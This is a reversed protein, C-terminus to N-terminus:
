EPADEKEWKSIINILARNIQLMTEFGVINRLVPATADLECEHQPIGAVRRDVIMMGGVVPEGFLLTVPSECPEELHSPHKVHWPLVAIPREDLVVRGVDACIDSDYLVFSPDEPVIEVVVIRLLLGAVDTEFVL